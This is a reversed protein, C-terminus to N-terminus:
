KLMNSPIANLMSAIPEEALTSHAIIKYLLFVFYLMCIRPRRTAASTTTAVHTDHWVTDMCRPVVLRPVIGAFVRFYAWGTNSAEYLVV